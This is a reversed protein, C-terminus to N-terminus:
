IDGVIVEYICAGDNLVMESPAYPENFEQFHYEVGAGWREGCTTCLWVCTSVIMGYTYLYVSDGVIVGYICIYICICICLWVRNSVIVGYTYIYVSDSM